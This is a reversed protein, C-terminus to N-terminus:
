GLEMMVCSTIQKQNSMYVMIANAILDVRVCSKINSAQSLIKYSTLKQKKQENEQLSTSM